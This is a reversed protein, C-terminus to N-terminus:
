RSRSVRRRQGRDPGRLAAEPPPGPAFAAPDHTVVEAIFRNLQPTPIRQAARDALAVARSLLGAVNRGSMASCTVVDPRLRMKRAVRARTDDIDTETIDWKNMVIMTACGAKM